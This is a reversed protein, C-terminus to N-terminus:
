GASPRPSCATSRTPRRPLLWEVNADANRWLVGKPMGPPAALTLPHLTTSPELSWTPSTPRSAALADEYWPARRGPRSGVRRAGAPDGATRWIPCCRPSTPAFQSHVVIAEAHPRTPSCTGCSRPSTATTSTSPARRRSRAQFRGSEHGQLQSREVRVGLGAGLLHNALRRTRETVQAWTFRRDRFVLCEQDPRTAAIAEHVDAVPFEM